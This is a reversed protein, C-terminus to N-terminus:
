EYYFGSTLLREVEEQETQTGLIPCHSNICQIYGPIASMTRVQCLPRGLDTNDDNAVLHFVAQIQDVGGYEGFAAFSGSSGGMQITPSLEHATDSIGQALATIGGGINGTLLSSVTGSVAGVVGAAAKLVDVDSSGFPLDIGARGYATLLPSVTEDNGAGLYVNLITEGSVFDVTEYITIGRQMIFADNPLKMKGYGTLMLYYDTFSDGNLYRGRSIQPHNFRAADFPVSYKVGTKAPLGAPVFLAATAGQVGQISFTWYGFKIETVATMQAAPPTLPFWKCSVIYQFPNFLTQVLEDTIETIGTWQLDTLLLERLKVMAQWSMVYYTVCGLISGSPSILGLIFCGNELNQNVGTALIKQSTAIQATRPYMSDLVYGNSDYSSRAVYQSSAGITDKYTALVDVSLSLLYRGNEWIIETIWYYRGLEPIYAYNFLPVAAGAIPAIYIQPNVLSTTEKFECLTPLPQASPRQTSNQKKSITYLNVTFAM